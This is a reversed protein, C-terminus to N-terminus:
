GELSIGERHQRYAQVVNELLMAITMPGVGHPVPSIFTCRDAVAHFDVDGVIRRKGDPSQGYGNIGVDVVIAGPRVHDPGVYLPQGIAAVLIDAQRCLSSSNPTHSHVVTVTANGISSKQLLLLALSKGVLTSRGLIVVHKGPIQVGHRCLLERVGKPTCPVFATPDGAVLKGSNIPHLGDVDKLPSVASIVRQTNIETPLPLQVLIGDISEDQNLGDIIHLLDREAISNAFHHLQVQIGVEECAKKKHTVYIQSPLDNGVLLVALTPPPWSSGHASLQQVLEQRILAATKRGDLWAVM